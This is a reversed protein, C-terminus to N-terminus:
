LLVHDNSPVMPRKGCVCFQQNRMRWSHPSRKRRWRPNPVGVHKVARATIYTPTALLRNGKLDPRPSSACGAIKRIHYCTWRKPDTMLFGHSKRYLTFSKSDYQFQQCIISSSGQIVPRTQPVNDHNDNEMLEHRTRFLIFYTSEDLVAWDPTIDFNPIVPTLCRCYRCKTILIWQHVISTGWLRRTIYFIHGHRWVM